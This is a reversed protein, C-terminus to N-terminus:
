VPFLLQVTSILFEQRHILKQIWSRDIVMYIYRCPLAFLNPGLITDNSCIKQRPSYM